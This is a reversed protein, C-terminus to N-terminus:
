RGIERLLDSVRVPKELHGSFGLRFCTAEDWLDRFTSLGVIRMEPRMERLRRALAISGSEPLGLDLLAVDPASRVAELLAAGASPSSRCRDGLAAVLTRLYGRTKRSGEAVLIERGVREPGAAGHVSVFEPVEIQDLLGSL